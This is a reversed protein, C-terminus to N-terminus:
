DSGKKTLQKEANQFTFGREIRLTTEREVEQQLLVDLLESSNMDLMKRRQDFAEFQAENVMITKRKDEKM